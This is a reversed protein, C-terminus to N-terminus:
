DCAAFYSYSNNIVNKLLLNKNFAKSTSMNRYIKHRKNLWELSYAMLKPQNQQCLSIDLFM